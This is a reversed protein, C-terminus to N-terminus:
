GGTGSRITNLYNKYVDKLAEKVMDNVGVCTITAGSVGDVCHQETGPCALSASGKVVSIPKINGADDVIRKDKWQSRFDDTTIEAGM